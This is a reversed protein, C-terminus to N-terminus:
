APQAVLILPSVIAGDSGDICPSCYAAKVRRSGTPTTAAITGHFKGSIIPMQFIAAASVVPQVTTTLGLSNVGSTSNRIASRATSAPMGAPAKLTTFPAPSTPWASIACGSTALTENVPEDAVPRLTPWAAIAALRVRQM